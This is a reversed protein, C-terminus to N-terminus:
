ADGAEDDDDAALGRSPQEEDEEDEDPEAERAAEDADEPVPTTRGFHGGDAARVDSEVQGDRMSVKRPMSAALERSHTVILFTTGLRENLRAFLRHIQESTASDLNGTPEDALVLKPNMVLARALAVRQQEGGSLERPSRRAGGEVGVGRLLEEARETKARRDGDPVAFRVNDLVSMHMFLAYGQPVYAVGRAEPRLDILARSDFLTRGALTIWGADPRLAGVIASLVTSKGAGNPGMLATVSDCRLELELELTGRKLKLEADLSM